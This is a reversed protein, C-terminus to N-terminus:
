VPRGPGLLPLPGPCTAYVAAVTSASAPPSATSPRNITVPTPQNERTTTRQIVVSAFGGAEIKPPFSTFLRILSPNSPTSPTTDTNAADHPSSLPPLAVGAAVAGVVHVCFAVSGLAMSKLLSPLSTM